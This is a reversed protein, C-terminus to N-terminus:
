ADREAAYEAEGPEMTSLDQDPVVSPIGGIYIEYGPLTKMGSKRAEYRLYLRNQRGMARVSDLVSQYREEQADSQKLLLPDMALSRHWPNDDSM